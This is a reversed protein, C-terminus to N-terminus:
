SHWHKKRIWQWWLLVLCVQEGAKEGEPSSFSLKSECCSATTEWFLPVGIFVGTHMNM